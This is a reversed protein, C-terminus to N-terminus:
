PDHNLLLLPCARLHYWFAASCPSASPCHALAAKVAKAAAQMRVPDLWFHPDLAAATDHDHAAETAGRPPAM